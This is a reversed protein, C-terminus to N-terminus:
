LEGGKRRAAEVLGAILRRQAPCWEWMREPHWQVGILFPFVPQEVAEIVGDASFASASLEPGLTRPAQHHSTSVFCPGQGLLSALKSGSQIEILHGPDNGPSPSDHLLAGPLESPLDQFLSGGAAVALVQMGRCVGLLPLRQSLASRCLRLEFEDRLLSPWRPIIRESEGYFFPHLDGGGALIVGDPVLSDSAKPLLPFPEGGAASVAEAFAQWAPQPPIGASIGIRPRELPM